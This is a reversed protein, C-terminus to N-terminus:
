SSNKIIYVNLSIMKITLKKIKNDKNIKKEKVQYSKRRKYILELLGQRLNKQNRPM